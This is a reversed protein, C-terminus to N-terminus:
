GGPAWPQGKPGEGQAPSKFDELSWTKQLFFEILKFTGESRNTMVELKDAEKGKINRM